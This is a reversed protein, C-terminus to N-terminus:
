GHMDKMSIADAINSQALNLQESLAHQGSNVPNFTGECNPPKPPTACGVLGCAIVMSLFLNQKSCM